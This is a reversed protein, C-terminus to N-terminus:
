FLNEHELSFFNLFCSINSSFHFIRILKWPKLAVFVQFFVDNEVSWAKGYRIRHYMDYRVEPSPIAGLFIFFSIFLFYFILSTTSFINLFSFFPSSIFHFVVFLFSPPSISIFLFLCRFISFLTLREVIIKGLGCCELIHM